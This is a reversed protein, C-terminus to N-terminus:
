EVVKITTSMVHHGAGCYENCLVLYEGPEDFTYRKENIQGPIVMMNVKTDVITFSHTVDTSTVKFVIEKGAPVEIQSPEYGFAMAIMVVEYTDEDIQRVGPDDFPPTEEVKEPDITDMGGSPHQDMAFASVGVISLFVILSVMGFILWIKEFRHFHM